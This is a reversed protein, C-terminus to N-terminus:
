FPLYFTLRREEDGLREFYVRVSDAPLATEIRESWEVAIVAGSDLYDFFGTTMLDDWGSVRYMDFHVFPPSGGYENVLSFTPRSVDAKLGFGAAMGRVFATKGMGMGGFLAVVAGGGRQALQQALQAGAQETERVCRSDLIHEAPM